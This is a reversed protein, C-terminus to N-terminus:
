RPMFPSIVDVGTRELIFDKAHEWSWLGAAGRVAYRLEWYGQVNWAMTARVGAQLTPRAVSQVYWDVGRLQAATGPYQSSGELQRALAQRATWIDELEEPAFDMRSFWDMLDEEPTGGTRKAM